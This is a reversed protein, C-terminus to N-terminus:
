AESWAFDSQWNVEGFISWDSPVLVPGAVKVPRSGTRPLFWLCNDAVYLISRGDASWTPAAAGQTGPVQVPRSSGATLLFLHHTSYWNLVTSPLFDEVTEAKAEVLALTTGQPSWVPDLALQGPPVKVTSCRVPSPECIEVYKDTWAYENGGGGVALVGYKNVSTAERSRGLLHPQGEPSAVWYLPFGGSNDAANGPDVSFLVGEQGPLVEAGAFQDGQFGRGSRPDFSIPSQYWLTRRGTLSRALELVWRGSFGGDKSRKVEVTEFAFQDWDSSWAVLGAPVRGTVALGGTASVRYVDDGVLLRSDPLWTVRNSADAGLPVAHAGSGDARALYFCDACDTESYTLWEANPSFQPDSAGGALPVLQVLKHQAGDLVYLGGLSVFALDGYSSFAQYDVVPGPVGVTGSLLAPLLAVAALAPACRVYWKVATWTRLNM